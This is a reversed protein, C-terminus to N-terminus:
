SSSIPILYYKCKHENRSQITRTVTLARQDGWTLTAPCSTKCLEEYKITPNQTRKRWTQPHSMEKHLGEYEIAPNWM